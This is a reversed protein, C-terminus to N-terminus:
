REVKNLQEFCELYEKDYIEFDKIKLIMDVDADLINQPNGNYFGNKALRLALFLADNDIRTKPYKLRESRQEIYEM